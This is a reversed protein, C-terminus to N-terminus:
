FVEHDDAVADESENSSEQNTKSGVSLNFGFVVEVEESVVIDVSGDEDDDETSNNENDGEKSAASGAVLVLAHHVEVSEEEETDENSLDSGADCGESEFSIELVLDLLVHFLTELVIVSRVIFGEGGGPVQDLLVHLTTAHLVVLLPLSAVVVGGSDRVGAADRALHLPTPHVVLLVLDELISTEGLEAVCEVVVQVNNSSNSDTHRHSLQQHHEHGVAHALPHAVVSLIHLNNLCNPILAFITDNM